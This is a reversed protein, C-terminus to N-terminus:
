TSIMDYIVAHSLKDYCSFAETCNSSSEFEVSLVFHASINFGIFSHGKKFIYNKKGQSGSNFPYRYPRENGSRRTQLNQTLFNRLCVPPLFYTRM